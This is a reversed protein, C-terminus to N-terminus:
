SIGRNAPIDTTFLAQYFQGALAIQALQYPDSQPQPIICCDSCFRSNDVISM